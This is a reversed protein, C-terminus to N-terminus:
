SRNEPEEVVEERGKGNKYEKDLKRAARGLMALMM